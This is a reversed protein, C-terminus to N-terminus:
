LVKEPGDTVEKPAAGTFLSKLADYRRDKTKNEIEAKAKIAQIFTTATIPLNGYELKQRGKEIFEDLAQEHPSFSEVPTDVVAMTEEVLVVPKAKKPPTIKNVRRWHEINGKMHRNAHQYFNIAPFPDKYEKIIETVSKQGHKNFYASLLIEESFAKHTKM